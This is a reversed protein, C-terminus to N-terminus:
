EVGFTEVAEAQGSEEDTSEETVRMRLELGEFGTLPYAGDTVTPRGRDAQIEWAAASAQGFSDQLHKPSGCGAGLVLGTACLLLSTRTM